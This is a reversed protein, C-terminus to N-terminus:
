PSAAAFQTRIAEIRKRNVGLDSKGLRSASRVQFVSAGPDLLFEVDDVFGMLGSTFEAYLYDDTATIIQTRDMKEIISKLKLMAEAPPTSYAIAPISHEADTAPAQSSVCNPSNPCASLKGEKIGITAPRKGSFSFLPKSGMAIEVTPVTPLLHATTLHTPQAALALGQSSGDGLLLLFFSFLLTLGLKLM